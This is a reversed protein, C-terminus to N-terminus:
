QAVKFSRNIWWQQGITLVNNVLWYLVLGSPFGWFLFTFFIPMFMMIQQQAKDMTSPTMKQQLVMTVGMVLPLLRIPLDFGAFGISFLNEPSSLDNIWLAFPAHRIEIANLLVQYLAFFVPIQLVMPLCGGLPNVGETRYLNMMEANRREPDKAYKKKIEELRPAVRQMAKMSTMSKKTLPYFLLKILVTVLIIAIGYNGVANEFLNLLALLPRALFGFFGLDVADSLGPAVGELESAKKPGLYFTFERSWSEGPNLVARSLSLETAVISTDGLKAVPYVRASANRDRERPLTVKLFYKLDIGAWDVNSFSLKEEVDDEDPRVIKEGQELIPSHTDYQSITKYNIGERITVRPALSLPGSGTNRVSWTVHAQYGDVRWSRQEVLGQRNSVLDFGAAGTSAVAFAQMDDGGSLSLGVAPRDGPAVGLDVLSKGRGAETQYNKLYWHTIGKTTSFTAAISANELSLFAEEKPTAPTAATTEAATPAPAPAPAEAAVPQEVADPAAADTKATQEQTAQQSPVPPKPLFFETYVYFVAMSLAFALLLRKEM